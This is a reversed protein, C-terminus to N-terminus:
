RKLITRLRGSFPRVDLGIVRFPKKDFNLQISVAMLLTSRLLMLFGTLGLRSYDASTKDLLEVMAHVRRRTDKDCFSAVNSLHSCFELIKKAIELANAPEEGLRKADLRPLMEVIEQGIKVMDEKEKM